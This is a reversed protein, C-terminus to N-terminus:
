HATPVSQREDQRAGKEIQVAGKNNRRPCSRMQGYTGVWVSGSFGQVGM